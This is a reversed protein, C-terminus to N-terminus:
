RDQISFFDGTAELYVFSSDHTRHVITGQVEWQQESMSISRNTTEIMLVLCMEQVYVLALLNDFQYKYQDDNRIAIASVLSAM